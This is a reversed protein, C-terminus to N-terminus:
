KQSCTYLFSSRCAAGLLFQASILSVPAVKCGTGEAQVTFEASTTFKSGGVFDLVPESTVTLSGDESWCKQQTERITLTSAGADATVRGEVQFAQIGCIDLIVFYAGHHLLRPLNADM